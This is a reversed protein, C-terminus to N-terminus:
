KLVFVGKDDVQYLRYVEGLRDGKEDFSITGTLGNYDVLTNHLYDAIKASDPGVNQVAEIIVGFADGALIAWVSSPLVEYKQQYADLLKVAAEGKIDAPGPPSIFYYGAAAAPGASEVLASNNTADGGIMAVDWNMEKKQRLILAAEPYYGTFVIIDPGKAKITTLIATFDRDGPSIAEFFVVEVGSTKFLEIAVDALGKAYSTNDHVVAAKKFGLAKVNEALVKGQMDDRPCTRFFLPLGKETLRISTSGTAIQVIGAEDYINQSAETVSSGYTGVVAVVGESILLQAAQAADKPAGGDDATHLEVKAGNVGGARNIEEAMLMVVKEM